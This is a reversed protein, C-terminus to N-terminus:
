EDADFVAKSASSYTETSDFSQKDPFAEASAATREDETIKEFEASAAGVSPRDGTEEAKGRKGNDEEM